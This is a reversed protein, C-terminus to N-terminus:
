MNANATALDAKAQDLQQDLDPTDISALVQGTTVHGGIDQQWSKLYGSVRAYIAAKYYPEINGPLTLRQKADGRVLKALAVTSM